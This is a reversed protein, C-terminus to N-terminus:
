GFNITTPDCYQRKAKLKRCMAKAAANSPLPGAKLRYFAGKGNGLDVHEIRNQLDGLMSGFRKQLQMWGREAAKKQRFSALHVAPQFGSLSSSATNGETGGLMMQRSVNGSAPSSSARPQMSGEIAAREKAYEDSTILDASQLMELRRVADAAEMLGKPPPPPNATSAPHEPMLADIIMTRESTHQSPSLARMELARGIARLRGSVQDLPPVPRDLGTAAPTSSLPLLAGVNMKRRILFEDQTVLGQDLLARMIKFRAVINLDADKFMPEPAMQMQAQPQFSQGSYMSQPATYPQPAAQAGGSPPMSPATQTTNTMPVMGGSSLLQMNVQAIDIIPQTKKDAWILIEEIPVPRIALIEEYLQRARSPQGTNQYLVAMGYLAHVDNPNAMLAKDFHAQALVNDGKALEAIGLEAENNIVAGKYTWFDSQFFQGENLAGCGSLGGAFIAITAIRLFTRNV